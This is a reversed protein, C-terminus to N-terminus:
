DIRKWGREAANAGQLIHGQMGLCWLPSHTASYQLSWHLHGQLSRQSKKPLDLLYASWRQSRRGEQWRRWKKTSAFAFSLLVIWWLPQTCSDQRLRLGLQMMCIM